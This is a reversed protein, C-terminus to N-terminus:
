GCTNYHLQSREVVIRWYRGCTRNVGALSYRLFPNLRHSILLQHEVAYVAGAALIQQWRHRGLVDGLDGLALGRVLVMEALQLCPVPAQSLLVKPRLFTHVGLLQVFGAPM